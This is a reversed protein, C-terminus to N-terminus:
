MTIIGDDVNIKTKRKWLEFTCAWDTSVESRPQQGSVLMSCQKYIYGMNNCSSVGGGQM